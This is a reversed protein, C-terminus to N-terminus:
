CSVDVYVTKSTVTAMLDDGTSGPADDVTRSHTQGSRVADVSCMDPSATGIRNVIVHYGRSRLNDITSDVSSPGSPAANAIVALAMAASALVTAAGTVIGINKITM